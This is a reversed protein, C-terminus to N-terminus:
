EEDNSGEKVSNMLMLIKVNNILLKNATILESIMVYHDRSFDDSNMDVFKGINDTDEEIKAASKVIYSLTDDLKIVGLFILAHSM